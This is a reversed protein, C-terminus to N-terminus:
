GVTVEKGQAASDYIGQLITQIMVGDELTSMPETGNELCDAFHLLEMEFMNVNPVEPTIESLYQEADEGFVTLPGFKAGAKTGCIVSYSEGPINLAWSTEVFMTAGNEFHILATASDETNFVVDDHDFAVYRNVKTKFDGFVSYTSASVRVPKPKGMLFWTRDICHVGLDLVPGGGSKKKDTFWGVPTGRRRTYATKAYYIDGFEGAEQMKHAVQAEGSYRTVMAMMFPTGAKKVEEQMKLANELTDAMPKECLVAKGAQAAAIAVSAHSANWVCVDIFDVDANALLEEVSAYANPIGFKKAAEQARELNIDAIAVIEFRDPNKAYNPLHATTAINGAGVIGVKFKKM